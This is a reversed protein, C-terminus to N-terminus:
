DGYVANPLIIYEAGFKDKNKEVLEKREDNLKKYFDSPFDGL